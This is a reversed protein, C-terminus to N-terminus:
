TLTEKLNKKLQNHVKKNTRFLEFHHPKEM